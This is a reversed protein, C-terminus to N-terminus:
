TGLAVPRPPISGYTQFDFAGEPLSLEAPCKWELSKTPRVNLTWAITDFDDQNYVGLDSGKPLYDRLLGNTNENIGRELPSHPHAFYVMMGTEGSFSAHASMEKGQDYTLSRLMKPDVRSLVRAFGDTACAAM